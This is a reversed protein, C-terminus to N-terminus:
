HFNKQVEQVVRMFEPEDRLADLRDLLIRASDMEREIKYRDSLEEMRTLDRNEM